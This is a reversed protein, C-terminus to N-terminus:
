SAPRELGTADATAVLGADESVAQDLAAWDLEGHGKAVSAMLRDRVLSAIPMPVGLAHAAELALTVDKLGLVLRFGAPTFRRRAIADGYGKYVPCDFLSSALLEIFAVRDIGSKEVFACSEAMTEIASAIMANGALKVANATGPAEGFDTVGRSFAPFLDALRQKPALEGSLAIRLQGAAAIPPRGFVPACLYHGGADKHLAHMRRGTAVAVTSMSVHVGGVGLHALIGDPGSTVADLAKDDSLISFVVGGPPTAAGPTEAVKAGAAALPETKDPTRNYVTVQHGADVLRQAIGRGMNGLGIFGVTEGM